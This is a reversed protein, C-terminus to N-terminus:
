NKPLQSSPQANGIRAPPEPRRSPENPRRFNRITKVASFYAWFNLTVGFFGYALFFPIAPLPVRLLAPRTSALVAALAAM